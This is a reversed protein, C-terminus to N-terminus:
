SGLVNTVFQEPVDVAAVLKVLFPVNGFRRYGEAIADHQTDYFGVVDQGHVLAYKGAAEGLLEARRKDFTALEDTLVQADGVADGYTSCCRHQKM